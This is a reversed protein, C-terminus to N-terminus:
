LILRIWLLSIVAQLGNWPDFEQPDAAMYDYIYDLTLYVQLIDIIRFLAAAKM